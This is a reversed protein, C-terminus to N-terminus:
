PGGLAAVLSWIAAALVGLEILSSVLCGGGAKAAASTTLAPHRSSLPQGAAPSPPVQVAAVLAGAPQISGSGLHYVRLAGAPLPMDVAKFIRSTYHAVGGSVVCRAGDGQQRIRAVAGTKADVVGWPPEPAWQTPRAGSGLARKGALCAITNSDTTSGLVVMAERDGVYITVPTAMLWTPNALPRQRLATLEAAVALVMLRDFTPPLSAPLQGRGAVYEMTDDCITWRDLGPLVSRQGTMPAGLVALFRLLDLWEWALAQVAPSGHRALAAVAVLFFYWYGGDRTGVENGMWGRVTKLETLWAVALDNAGPVGAFVACALALLVWNESSGRRAGAMLEQIAALSYTAPTGAPWLELAEVFAGDVCPNPIRKPPRVALFRALSASLDKEPNAM